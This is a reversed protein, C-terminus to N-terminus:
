QICYIPQFEIGDNLRNRIIEKRIDDSVIIENHHPRYNFIKLDRVKEYLVRLLIIDSLTRGCPGFITNDNDIVDFIKNFHMIYCEKDGYEKSIVRVPFFDLYDNHNLFSLFLDKLEKSIVNGGGVIMNFHSYPGNVLELVLNQWNNVPTADIAVPTPWGKPPYIVGTASYGDALLEYYKIM